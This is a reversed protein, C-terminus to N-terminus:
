LAQGFSDMLSARTPLYQNDEKSRRENTGWGEKNNLTRKQFGTPGPIAWTDQMNWRKGGSVINFGIMKEMVEKKVWFAGKPMDDPYVPGSVWDNDWSNLVLVAPYPKLRYGCVCMAHSWSGSPALYGDADRQSPQNRGRPNNFGTQSCVVCANGNTVAAVLEDWNKILTAFPIPHKKAVEALKDGVGRAGMQKARNASYTTLDINLEPYKKAWVIGYTKLFKVAAAGSSGDGGPYYSLGAGEVRSGGYCAEGSVPAWFDILGRQSYDVSVSIGAAHATACGVCSGVSGQNIWYPSTHIDPNGSAIQAKFSRVYYRYLFVEEVTPDATIKYESFLGLRGMDELLAKTAEPDPKYGGPGGVEQPFIPLASLGLILCAYLYKLM